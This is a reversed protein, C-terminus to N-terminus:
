SDVSLIRGQSNVLMAEVSRAFVRGSDVGSMEVRDKLFTSRFWVPISVEDRDSLTEDVELRHVGGVSDRSYLMIRLQFNEDVLMRLRPAQPQEFGEENLAIRSDTFSPEVPVELFRPLYFPLELGPNGESTQLTMYYNTPDSQFSMLYMRYDKENMRDGFDIWGSEIVSDYTKDVVTSNEVAQRVYKRRGSPDYPVEHNLYDSLELDSPEDYSYKFLACSKNDQYASNRLQVLEIPTRIGMLFANLGTVPDKISHACTFVEDIESVTNFKYDFALTKHSGCIFIESTLVNDTLYFTDGYGFEKAVDLQAPVDPEAFSVTISYLDEKGAYLLHRDNVAALTFRDVPVRSGNYRHEFSFPADLTPDEPSFPSLIGYGSERFVVMRNKLKELAILATGDGTLDFFNSVNSISDDVSFGYIETINGQEDKGYIQQLNNQTIHDVREMWGRIEKDSFDLSNENDEDYESVGTHGSRRSRRGAGMDLYEQLESERNTDDSSLTVKFNLPADFKYKVYGNEEQVDVIERYNRIWVTTGDKAYTGLVSVKVGKYFTPPAQRNLPILPDRIHYPLRTTFWEDGHSMWGTGGDGDGSEAQSGWRGPSSPNSYYVRYAVNKVTVAGSAYYSSDYVSGYYPYGTDACWKGWLYQQHIDTFETVNALVLYGSYSTVIEASVIGTERLEYIPHANTWDSHFLFPLDRANNFTVYRDLWATQFRDGKSSPTLESPTIDTWADMSSRHEEETGVVDTVYDDLPSNPHVDVYGGDDFRDFYLNAKKGAESTPDKNLVYLKTNTAAVTVRTGSEYQDLAVISEDTILSQGKLNAKEVDSGLNTPLDFPLYLSDPFAADDSALWPAGAYPKFFEWGERRTEFDHERRFNLKVEYNAPNNALEESMAPALTGGSTPKITLQKYGRKKAM